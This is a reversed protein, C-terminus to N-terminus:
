ASLELPSLGKEQAIADLHATTLLELGIHFPGANQGTNVVKIYHNCKKCFDIRLDPEDPTYYYRADGSGATQCAPCSLSPVLWRSGCFPCHMFRESAATLNDARGQGAHLEALGPPGGCTPCHFQKWAELRADPLWNQAVVEWHPFTVARTLTALFSEEVGIQRSADPFWNWGTRANSLWGRARCLTARENPKISKTSRKAFCTM